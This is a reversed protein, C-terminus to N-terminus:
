TEHEADFLGEYTKLHCQLGAALKCPCHCVHCVFTLTKVPTILDTHSISDKYVVLHRKLGSASRSVKGCIVCVTSDPQQPVNSSSPRDIHSKMHNM